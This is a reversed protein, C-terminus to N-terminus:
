VADIDGYEANGCDVAKSHARRKIYFWHDLIGNEASRRADGGTARVAALYKQIERGDDTLEERRTRYPIGVRVPHVPM